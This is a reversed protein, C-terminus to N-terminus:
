AAVLRGAHELVLFHPAWGTAGVASKSQHLARLYALSVFPTTTSQGALLASWADHDIAAPDDVIKIVYEDPDTTRQRRPRAEESMAALKAWRADGRRGVLRPQRPCAGVRAKVVHAM